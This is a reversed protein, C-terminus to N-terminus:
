ENPWDTQNRFSFLVALVALGISAFGSFIGIGIYIVHSM